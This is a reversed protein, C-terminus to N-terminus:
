RASRIASFPSTEAGLAATPSGNKTPLWHGPRDSAPLAGATGPTAGGAARSDGHRGSRGHAVEVIDARDAGDRVRQEEAPAIVEVLADVLEAGVVLQDAGLDPLQEAERLGVEGGGLRGIRRALMAGGVRAWGNGSGATIAPAM